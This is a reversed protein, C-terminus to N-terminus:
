AVIYHTLPPLSRQAADNAYRFSGVVPSHLSQRRIDLPVLPMATFSRAAARPPFLVPCGLPIGRVERNWTAREGARRHVPYDGEPPCRIALGGTRMLVHVGSM